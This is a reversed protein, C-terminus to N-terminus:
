AKEMERRHCQSCGMGITAGDILPETRHATWMGCRDCWRDVYLRRMMTGDQPQVHHYAEAVLEYFQRVAQSM